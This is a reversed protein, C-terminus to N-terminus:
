ILDADVWAKYIKPGQFAIWDVMEENASWPGEFANSNEQLGCECLFAHVIEHRAVKKMYSAIDEVSGYEKQVNKIVITRISMDTYGDCDDLVKDDEKNIVLIDWMSGLINIRKNQM